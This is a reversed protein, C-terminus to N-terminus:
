FRVPAALEVDFASLDTTRNDYLALRRKQVPTLNRRRAFWFHEPILRGAQATAQRSGGGSSVGEGSLDPWPGRRGSARRPRARRTM